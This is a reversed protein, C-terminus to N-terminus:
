ITIEGKEVSVLFKKLFEVDDPHTLDVVKEKSADIIYPTTLDGRDSIDALRYMAKWFSPAIIFQEGGTMVDNPDYGNSIKYPPKGRELM